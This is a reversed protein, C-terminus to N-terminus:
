LVQGTPRLVVEFVNVNPPQELVFRVARAVDAPELPVVGPLIDAAAEHVHILPTEVLGPEIVSVRIGRDAVEQRLCDAFAVTAHKSAVYAPEGVYTVRGSVSALVVIHGRGRELMPPLAARVGYLVGLVNTGIVESWTAPDAHAVPGFDAVAANAVFVDLSGFREIALGVLGEMHSHDRVDGPAVIAESGLARALEAVAELRERRRGTLVLRAGQEALDQAIAAGIGTGAGTILVTQGGISTM